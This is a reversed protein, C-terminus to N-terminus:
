RRSEMVYPVTLTKSSRRYSLAATGLVPRNKRTLLRLTCAVLSYLKAMVTVPVPVSTRLVATLL